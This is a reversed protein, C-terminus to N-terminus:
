QRAAVTRESKMVFGLFKSISLHKRMNQTKETDKTEWKSKSQICLELGFSISSAWRKVNRYTKRQSQGNNETREFKVFAAAAHISTEQRKRKENRTKTIWIDLMYLGLTQFLFSFLRIFFIAFDNKKTMTANTRKNKM